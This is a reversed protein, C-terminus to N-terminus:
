FHTRLLCPRAAAHLKIAALSHSGYQECIPCGRVCAETDQVKGEAWWSGAGRQSPLSPPCRWRRYGGARRAAAGAPCRQAPQKPTGGGAHHDTLARRLQRGTEGGESRLATSSGHHTWVTKYSTNAVQETQATGSSCWCPVCGASPSGLLLPGASQQSNPPCSSLRHRPPPPPALRPAPPRAPPPRAPGCVLLRRLSCRQQQRAASMSCCGSPIGCASRVCQSGGGWSAHALVAHLLM